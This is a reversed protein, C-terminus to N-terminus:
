SPAKETLLQKSSIDGRNARREEKVYYKEGRTRRSIRIERQQNIECPILRIMPYTESMKQINFIKSM